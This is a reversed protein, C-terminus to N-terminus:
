KNEELLEQLKYTIIKSVIGIMKKVSAEKIEDMEKGHIMFNRKRRFFAILEMEDETIPINLRVVMRRLKSNFSAEKIKSALYDNMDKEFEELFQPSANELGESKVKVCINQNLINMLSQEKIGYKYLKDEVITNGKEKYLCFELAMVCYIIKDGKNTSIRVKNIWRIANFLSEIKKNKEQICKIFCKEIWDSELKNLDLEDLERVHPEIRENGSVCIAQRDLCDEIYAINMLSIEPFLRSAEWHECIEGIGFFEAMCDNRAFFAILDVVRMLKEKALSYAEYHNAANQDTWIIVRENSGEKELLKEFEFSVKIEEGIRVDGISCTGNIIRLNNIAMAVLFTREAKLENPVVVGNIDIDVSELLYKVIVFPNRINQFVLNNIIMHGIMYMPYSMLKLTYQNKSKDIKFIVGKERYDVGALNIMLDVENQLSVKKIIEDIKEERITFKCSFDEFLAGIMEDIVYENEDIIMKLSVAVMNAPVDYFLRIGNVYIIGKDKINERNHVVAENIDDFAVGKNFHLESDEEKGIKCILMEIQHLSLSTVKNKLVDYGLIANEKKENTCFISVFGMGNECILYAGISTGKYFPMEIIRHLVPLERLFNVEDLM